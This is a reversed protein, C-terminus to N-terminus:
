NEIWLCPRAISGSWQNCVQDGDHYSRNADWSSYYMGSQTTAPCVKGSAVVNGNRMYYATSCGWNGFARTEWLDIYLGNGYVYICSDRSGGDDCGSATATQADGAGPKVGPKFGAEAVVLGTSDRAVTVVEGSALTHPATWTVIDSPKDNEIASSALSSAAPAALGVASVILLLAARRLFSMTPLGKTLSDGTFGKVEVTSRAPLFRASSCTQEPALTLM